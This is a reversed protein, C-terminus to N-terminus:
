IFARCVSGTVKLNVEVKGVKVTCAKYLENLVLTIIRARIKCYKGFSETRESVQHM